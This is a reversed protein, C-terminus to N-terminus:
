ASEAAAEAARDAAIRNLWPVLLWCLATFGAGVVVLTMFANEAGMSTTWAAYMKGGVLESLGVAQNSLAMLLAFVTAAVAPPCYRAALDLQVLTVFMIGYGYPIAILYAPEVGIAWADAAAGAGRFSIAVEGNDLLAWGLTAVIAVVICAHVLIKFQFRRCIAGYTAAAAVSAVAQVSVMRGYLSEDLGLADTMHMYRVSSGFPSFNVLFLFAGVGLVAPHLAARGLTLVAEKLTGAPRATPPDKVMFIAILLSGLATIGCILFGTTQMGRQALEGGLVGTGIAAGYVCAWQVSQLTGTIGRPQGEEVMLGDVVVDTFAIGLGPLVLMVMLLSTAGQQPPFFFLYLLAASTIGTWLILWARRRSGRIPVFDTLLGYVPKIYWPFGIVFMFQGVEGADMGWSRLLSKVPQSILGETPEAIGQVFYLAGFIFALRRTQATSEPLPAGISAM